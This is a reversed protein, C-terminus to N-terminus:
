YQLPKYSKNYSKRNWSTKANLVKDMENQSLHQPVRAASCLKMWNQQEAAALQALNPNVTAYSNKKLHCFACYSALAEVEKINLFPLGEDDAYIGKYLITISPYNENVFLKDGLVRYNVLKGSQYLSNVDHKILENDEEIPSSNLANNFEITSTRQCDEFGATVSEIIDCNCPIPVYWGLGEENKEPKLSIKYLQYEKNNIKEWGSIGMVEFQDEPIEIGYMDRLHSLVTYFPYKKIVSNNM